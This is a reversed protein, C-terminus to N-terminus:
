KFTKLSVKLNKLANLASNQESIKKTNGPEGIGLIIIDGEINNIDYNELIKKNKSHISKFNDMPPKIYSISIYEKNQIVDKVSIVKYLPPETKISHLYRMLIDKYNDNNNIIESLDVYKEIIATLFRKVIDINCNQDKYLVGIFAEFLNEMLSNNSNRGNIKEVHSSILINKNFNLEKAFKCLGETKVIRSKLSTLFGEDKDHFKDFLYDTVVLDIVRDGLFEFRENNGKYLIDLTCCSDALDNDNDCNWFSKHIFAQQFKNINNINIKINTYHLILDEIFRKTVEFNNINNM